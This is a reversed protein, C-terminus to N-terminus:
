RNAGATADTGLAANMKATDFHETFSTVKGNALTWVHAWPLEFANGATTRGVHRGLTVVTDGRDVYTQPEVALEAFNEPLKSFFGGVADPGTYRGGFRVSDPTSWAIDPGFLGLVGPIDGTAFAAYGRRIIDVNSTLSITPPATPAVIGARPTFVEHAATVTTEPAAEVGVAAMAPGLRQEVFATFAQESEWADINHCDDGEWWTVHSIGGAPPQHLWGAVERVADYQEKTVGRLTVHVTVAM